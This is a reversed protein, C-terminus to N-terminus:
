EYLACISDSASHCRHRSESLPIALDQWNLPLGKGILHCLRTLLTAITQWYRPLTKGVAQCRNPLIPNTSLTEMEEGVGGRWCWLLPM